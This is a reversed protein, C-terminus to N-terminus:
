TRAPPSAKPAIALLSLSSLPRPPATAPASVELCRQVLAQVEPAPCEARRNTATFTCEEHSATGPLSSALKEFAQVSQKLGSRSTGGSSSDEEFAQHALCYRHAHAQAHAIGLLPQLLSFAVLLLAFLQQPIHARPRM